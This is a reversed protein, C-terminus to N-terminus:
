NLDPNVDRNLATALALWQLEVLAPVWGLATTGSVDIRHTSQIEANRPDRALSVHWIRDEKRQSHRPGHFYEESGFVRVPLRAMEMLKLAGERAIWEGEYEGLLIGPGEGARRRMLDLDPDGLTQLAGWEEAAKVGLLLNTVACIAGTVSVTHPEVTEQPVTTLVHKATQPAEVGQGTVLLTFAGNRDCLELAQMTPGSKGRHSFAFAWDGRQPMVEQGISMSSCAIMPMRTRTKDRLLSAACLRAAFHSSGLGFFLIRKPGEIPLDRGTGQAMRESIEGWLRRQSRLAEEVQSVSM